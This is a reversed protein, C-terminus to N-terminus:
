SPRPEIVIQRQGSQTSRGSSPTMRLVDPVIFTDNQARLRLIENRGSCRSSRLFEEYKPIVRNGHRPVSGAPSGCTGSDRNGRGSLLNLPSAAVHLEYRLILAEPQPPRPITLVQPDAHWAAHAHGGSEHDPQDGPDNSGNATRVNPAPASSRSSTPHTSPQAARVPRDHSPGGIGPPGWEQSAGGTEPQPPSTARVEHDLGIPM